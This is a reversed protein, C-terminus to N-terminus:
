AGAGREALPPLAPEHAVVVPAAHMPASVIRAQPRTRAPRRDHRRWWAPVALTLAFLGALAVLLPWTPQRRKWHMPTVARKARTSKRARAATATRLCDCHRCATRVAAAGSPGFDTYIDGHSLDTDGRRRRAAVTGRGCVKGRRARSRPRGCCTAARTPIVKGTLRLRVAVPPASGSLM